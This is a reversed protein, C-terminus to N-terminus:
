TLCFIGLEQYFPAITSIITETEKLGTQNPKPQSRKTQNRETAKTQNNQNGEIPTTPKTKASTDPFSM